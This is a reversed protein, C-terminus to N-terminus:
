QMPYRSITVASLLIECIAVCYRAYVSSVRYSDELYHKEELWKLIHKAKFQQTLVPVTGSRTLPIRFKSKRYYLMQSLAALIFIVSFGSLLVTDQFCLSIDIEDYGRNPDDLGGWFKSVPQCYSYLFTSNSAM